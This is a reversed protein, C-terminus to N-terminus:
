ALTKVNKILDEETKATEWFWNFLSNCWKVGCPDKILLARSTDPANDITPLFLLANRQSVAISTATNLRYRVKIGKKLLDHRHEALESPPVRTEIVYGGAEPMEESARKVYTIADPLMFGFGGGGSLMEKFHEVIKNLGEVVEVDKTFGVGIFFRPPIGAEFTHSSLYDKMKALRGMDHIVEVIFLGIATLKCRKDKLRAAVGLERM